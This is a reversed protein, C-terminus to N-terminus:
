YAPLSTVESPLAANGPAVDISTVRMFQGKQVVLYRDNGSVTDLSFTGDPETIAFNDDCGLSECAPCYVHQPIGIPEDVSTYVVAGSIPIEGNPAFVTGTLTADTPGAGLCGGGDDPLGGVDFIVP